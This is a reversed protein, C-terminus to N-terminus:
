QIFLNSATYYNYLTYIYSIIFSKQHYLHHQVRKEIKCDLAAVSEAQVHSRPLQVTLSTQRPPVGVPVSGLINQGIDYDIHTKKLNTIKKKCKKFKKKM